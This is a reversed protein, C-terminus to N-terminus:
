GSSVSMLSMAQRRYRNKRAVRAMVLTARYARKARDSWKRRAYLAAGSYTLALGLLVTPLGFQQFGLVTAL